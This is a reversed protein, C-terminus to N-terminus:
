SMLYGCKSQYSLFCHHGRARHGSGQGSGVLELWGTVYVCHLLLLPHPLRPGGGKPLWCRCHPKHLHVGGVRSTTTLPSACTSAAEVLGQGWVWSVKTFACGM